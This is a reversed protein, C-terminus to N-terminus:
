TEAAARDLKGQLLELAEDYGVARLARLAPERGNAVLAAVEEVLGSDFMAHTRAQIRSRLEDTEVQLEVVRWEAELGPRAAQARWWALPRGSAEVVELARIVRQRDTPRLGAAAEPDLARLRHHLAAVGRRAAEEVLAARRAADHPPEASLGT